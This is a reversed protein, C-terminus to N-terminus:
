LVSTRDTGKQSRGECVAAPLLPKVFSVFRLLVFRCLQASRMVRGQLQAQLYKASVLAVSNVVM